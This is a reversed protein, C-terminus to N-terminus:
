ETSKQIIKQLKQKLLDRDYDCDDNYCHNEIENMIQELWLDKNEKTSKQKIKKAVKYIDNSLKTPIYSIGMNLLGCLELVIAQAPTM